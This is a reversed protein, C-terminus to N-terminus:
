APSPQEALSSLGVTSLARTGYRIQKRGEASLTQTRAVQGAELLAARALKTEGMDLLHTALIELRQTAKKIQGTKVDSYVKEQMKFISLKGVATKIAEPIVLEEELTPKVEVDLETWEWSRHKAQTPMDGDVTLRMLRLKGPSLGKVRFELLISQNQDASFSGLRIQGSRMELKAIHPTVRYAEHLQITEHLNLKIKVDRIVVTELNHLTERFVNKIKDPSDIYISAGGSLNAMQDLLDENWDSGIGITSFQILHTGAWKAHALCEEEDGYTQGDTLLILHNISDSSQKQKLLTLGAKIGPLIETGGGAQITSVISKARVQDINREGELLTDARDSFVVLSLLDEARLNDIINNIAEKIRQLRVGQMSTSRDIVLCLNLPLRAVPLNANPTVNLHIYYAQDHAVPCLTQQSATAQLSLAATKDIGQQTRWHDYKQRQMPDSLLEYAEQVEQFKEEAEPEPNVDPHYRRALQRYAKHIEKDTSHSSIDLIRYYNKKVDM